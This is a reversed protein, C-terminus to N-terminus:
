LAAVLSPPTFSRCFRSYLVTLLAVAMIALLFAEDM